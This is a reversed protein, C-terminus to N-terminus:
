SSRSSTGTGSPLTHVDDYDERAQTYRRPGGCIIRERPPKPLIAAVFAITVALWLGLAAWGLRVLFFRRFSM